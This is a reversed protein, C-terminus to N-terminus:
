FQSLPRSARTEWALFNDQLTMKKTENCFLVLQPCIAFHSGILGLLESYIPLCLYTTLIYIGCSLHTLTESLNWFHLLSEVSFLGLMEVSFILYQILGRIFVTTVIFGFSLLIYDLWSGLLIPSRSPCAWQGPLLRAHLPPQTSGVRVRPAKNFIAYCLLFWELM